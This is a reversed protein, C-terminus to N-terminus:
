SEMERRRAIIETRAALTQLRAFLIIFSLGTFMLILKMNSDMGTQAHKSPIVPSPHLGPAVRPAVFVLFPVTAFALIAYVAALRARKDPDDVASRLGFYALYILLLVAISTERPDWNWYSGWTAKALISGTITALVCFLLGLQASTLARADHDQDRTRLVQISHVCSTLFAVVAVMACAVHLYIARVLEGLGQAPPSIWLAAVLSAGILLVTIISFMM